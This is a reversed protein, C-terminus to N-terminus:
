GGHLIIGMAWWLISVFSSCSFVEGQLAPFHIRLECSKLMPNQGYEQHVFGFYGTWITFIFWNIDQANNVFVLSGLWLVWDWFAALFTRYLTDTSEILWETFCFFMTCHHAKQQHELLNPSGSTNGQMEFMNFVPRDFQNTPLSEETSVILLHFRYVLPVANGWFFLVCVFLLIM